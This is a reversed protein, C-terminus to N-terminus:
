KNAWRRVAVCFFRLRRQPPNTNLAITSTILAAVLVPGGARYLLVLRCRQRHIALQESGCALVLLGTPRTLCKDLKLTKGTQGM